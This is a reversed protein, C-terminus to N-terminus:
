SYNWVTKTKISNWLVSPIKKKQFDLVLTSILPLPYVLFEQPVLLRSQSQSELFILSVVDMFEWWHTQTVLDHVLVVAIFRSVCSPLKIPGTICLSSYAILSYWFCILLLRWPLLVWVLFLGHAWIPFLLFPCKLIEWPLLLSPNFWKTMNQSGFIFFKFM